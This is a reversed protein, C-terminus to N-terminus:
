QLNKIFNIMALCEECDVEKLKGDYPEEVTEFENYELTSSVSDLGCITYEGDVVVSNIAHTIIEYETTFTEHKLRQLRM